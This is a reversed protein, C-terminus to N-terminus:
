TARRWRGATARPRSSCPWCSTTCSRWKASRTTPSTSACRTTTTAGRKASPPTPRYRNSISSPRSCRTCCPTAAPMRSCISAAGSPPLTRVTATPSTSPTSCASITAGRNEGPPWCRTPTCTCTKTARSPPCAPSARMAASAPRSCSANRSSTPGTIGARTPWWWCYRASAPWHPSRRWPKSRCHPSASCWWGARCHPRAHRCRPWASSSPAICPPATTTVSIPASTKWCCAGCTRRGASGPRCHRAATACPTAFNTAAM